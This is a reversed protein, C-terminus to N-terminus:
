AKLAPRNELKRFLYYLGLAVAIGILGGAFVDSPFHVGLYVRSYAVLAALLMWFALKIKKYELFLGSLLLMAFFNASHSSVFGYRSGAPGDPLRANLHEHLFPRKRKFVPKMVRSSFSDAIGFAAVVLAVMMLAKLPAYKRFLQYVIFVYLPIWEYKGSLVHMVPDLWTASLTQNILVFLFDDITQLFAIM